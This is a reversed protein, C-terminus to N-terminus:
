EQGNIDRLLSSTLCCLSVPFPSFTRPLAALILRGMKYVTLSLSLSAAPVPRHHHQAQFGMNLSRGAQCPAVRRAILASGTEGQLSTFHCSPLIHGKRVCVGVGKDGAAATDRTKAPRIQEMEVARRGM